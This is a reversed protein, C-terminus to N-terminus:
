DRKTYIEFRRSCIIKLHARDQDQRTQQWKDFFMNHEDVASEVLKQSRCWFYSEGMQNTVAQVQQLDSKICVDVNLEAKVFDGNEKELESLILM